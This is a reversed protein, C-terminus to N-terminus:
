NTRTVSMGWSGINENAHRIQFVIIIQLLQSLKQITMKCIYETIQRIRYNEQALNGLSSASVLSPIPTPKNIYKLDKIQYIKVSSFMKQVETLFTKKSMIKTDFELQHLSSPIFCSYISSHSVTFGRKVKLLCDRKIRVTTKRRASQNKSLIGRSPPPIGRLFPSLPIMVIYNLSYSLHMFFIQSHHLLMSFHGNCNKKFIPPKQHGKNNM